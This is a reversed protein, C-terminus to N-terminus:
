TIVHTRVVGAGERMLLGVAEGQRAQEDHGSQRGADLFGGGVRRGRGLFVSTRELLVDAGEPGGRADVHDGGRVFVDDEESAARVVECVQGRDLGVQHTVEGGVLALFGGVVVDLVRQLLGGRLDDHDGDGMILLHALGGLGGQQGVQQGVTEVGGPGVGIVLGVGLLAGLGDAGGGGGEVGGEVTRADDEAGSGGGVAGGGRPGHPAVRTAEVSRAHPPTPRVVGVGVVDVDVDSASAAVHVPPHFKEGWGSAGDDIPSTVARNAQDLVVGAAAIPERAVEVGRQEVPPHPIANGRPSGQTLDTPHASVIVVEVEHDVFARASREDGRRGGEADIRDGDGERTRSAEVEALACGLGSRGSTRMASSVVCGRDVEVAGRNEVVREPFRRVCAHDADIAVTAHGGDPAARRGEGQPVRADAGGAGDGDGSGLANGLDSSVLIPSM